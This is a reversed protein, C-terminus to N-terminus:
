KLGSNEQSDKHWLATPIDSFTDLILKLFIDEDVEMFGTAGPIMLYVPILFSWPKKSQRYAVVSIEEPATAALVQKWWKAKELRECRKIEIQYPHAGSVDAGGERTQLLNRKLEGPFFPQFRNIFESEARKGKERVNIAM